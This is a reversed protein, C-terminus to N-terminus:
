VVVLVSYNCFASKRGERTDYRDSASLQLSLISSSGNRNAWGVRWQAFKASRTGNPSTSSRPAFSKRIYTVNATISGSSRNQCGLRRSGALSAKLALALACGMLELEALLSRVIVFEWIRMRQSRVDRVKYHFLNTKSFYADVAVKRLYLWRQYISAPM